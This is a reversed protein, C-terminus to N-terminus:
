NGHLGPHALWLRELKVADTPEVLDPLGAYERLEKETGNFLDGDLDGSGVGFVPGPLKPTFQWFKWPWGYTAPAYNDPIQSASTMLNNTGPRYFYAAIWLDFETTLWSPLPQLMKLTSQNCYFIMRAVGVADKFRRILELSKARPPLPEPSWTEYPKEYDMAKLLEGPLPVTSKFKNGQLEPTAGTSRWDYFWFADRPLKDKSVAWNYTFRNDVGVNQGAKVFAFRAQDSVTEWNIALQWGSVDIGLPYSEYKGM